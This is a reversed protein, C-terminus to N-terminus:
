LYTLKKLEFLPSIDTIKNNQLDLEQLNLLDSLSSIDSINNLWFYLEKINILKSLPSIDSIGRNFVNIYQEIKKNQYIRDYFKIVGYPKLLLYGHFEEIETIDLGQTVLFYNKIKNKKQETVM